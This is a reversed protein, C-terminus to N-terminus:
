TRTYVGDNDKYGEQKLANRWYCASEIIAPEIVNIGTGRPFLIELAIVCESVGSKEVARICEVADIIGKENYESTFPWHRSAKSDTQQAHILLMENSGFPAALWQLPDKDNGKHEPDGKVHAMHGLDLHMHFPAESSSNIRELMYKARRITNPQLQPRHMQELFIAEIGTEVAYYSLGALEDCLRDIWGDLDENMQPISLCDYHGSICRAGLAASLDMFAKIWSRACERMDEFPHSLMNLLYSIRATAGSWVKLSNKEIARQAAQFFESRNQIVERFLVPELHDAFFEFEKLGARKM